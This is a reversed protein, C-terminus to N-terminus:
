TTEDYRTITQESDRTKSIYYRMLAALSGILGGLLVGIISIVARRPGTKLEPAIAPDITALVYERRVEALMMRQMQTQVLEYFVQDLDALPTEAAQLKLYEISEKAEEIEKRRMTENVGEVVWDVWQKAIDPSQHEVSVTILSTQANQEVNLIRLLEDYAEQASPARAIGAQEVGVWSNSQVDYLEPDFILERNQADWHDIALLEPLIDHKSIFENLFVRSRVVEVALGAKSIRKGGPLSVGAISALGSYQSLVGSLGGDSDESPSLLASSRYIDPLSMAYITSVVAFFFTVSLILKKASWMVSFLERLDIDDDHEDKTM